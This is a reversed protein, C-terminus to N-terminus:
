PVGEFFLAVGACSAIAALILTVIQELTFM